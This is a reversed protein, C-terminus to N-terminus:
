KIISVNSFEATLAASPIDVCIPFGAETLTIKYYKENKASEIFFTNDQQKVTPNRYVADSLASYLVQAVNAFPLKETKPTYTLGKFEASLHDKKVTLKMGKITQPENVTLTLTNDKSIEASCEFVENYFTLKADFAIGSLVPKVNTTKAACGCLFILSFVLSLIRKM